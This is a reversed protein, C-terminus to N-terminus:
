APENPWTINFPDAQNTIDRLAQRYTTWAAADAPADPLQTWDSQSLKMGRLSRVTRWQYAIREAIEEASADSVIWNQVWGSGGNTPQGESVNKTYDVQPYDADAVAEYGDPPCFEAAFSINAFRARIDGDFVPYEVIENNEILAYKM